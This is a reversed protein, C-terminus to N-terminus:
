GELLSRRVQESCYGLESPTWNTIPVGGHLWWEGGGEM